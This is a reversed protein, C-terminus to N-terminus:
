AGPESKSTRENAPMGMANKPMDNVLQCSMRSSSISDVAPKGTCMSAIDTGTVRDTTTIAVWRISGSKGTNVRIAINDNSNVM